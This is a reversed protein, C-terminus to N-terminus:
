ILKSASLNTKSINLSVHTSDDLIISRVEDIFLLNKENLQTEEERGGGGGGGL